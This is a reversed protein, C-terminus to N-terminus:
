ARVALPVLPTGVVDRLTTGPYSSRFLGRKQLEPVVSRAFEELSGPMHIPTIMFGDCGREEFMHELMDAIQKPTGVMQPTLESTAFRTAAEGLLLHEAKTGQLIVEFSGRSGQEVMVDRVPQDVSYGALDIGIHYAVHALGAIPNVLSNAYEARERAISETEGLIPQVAPIIKVHDPDRGLKAAREKIDIYFAQMDSLSHQLTFIVEGWQAAFDRGRSSAGAQMLIPRGQPSRPVSLPGRVQLYRSRHNLYHVKRPDAFTGSAKDLILADDEWSDWLGLVVELFEDGRDYRDQRAPIADDGFNQADSDSISMVVNWAARGGSLHDLSAMSRAIAYPSFFTASLTSAVGIRSTAAAIVGMVQLPDLTIVSQGGYRVTADLSGGFRDPIHLVDPMFAMDFCAQELTRGVSEYFRRDLWGNWTYPHRWMGQHHSVPLFLYAILSMQRQDTM